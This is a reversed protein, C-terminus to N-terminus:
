RLKRMTEAKETIRLYLMQGLSSTTVPSEGTENGRAIVLLQFAHHHNSTVRTSRTAAVALRRRREERVRCPPPVSVYVHVGRSREVCVSTDALADSHRSKSEKEPMEGLACGAHSDSGCVAM